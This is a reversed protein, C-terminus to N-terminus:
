FGKKYGEKYGENYGEAKGGEWGKRFSSDYYCLEEATIERIQSAM